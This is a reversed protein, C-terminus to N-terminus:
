ASRSSEGKEEGVDVGCFALVKDLYDDFDSIGHNSGQILTTDVGPYQALMDRYDLVEDGTAALLFYREPHTIAAVKFSRLEDLHRREVVITGGGHWLPQEGLFHDLDKDPATAPNMLVARCGYREALWNAYYGGLSSGILTLSAPPTEGIISEALRVAEFPSVPLQPCRWQNGLHLNALRSALRRAKFSHPSSRFGHLYLIL